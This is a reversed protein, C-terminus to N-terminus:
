RLRGSRGHPAPRRLTPFLSPTHGWHGLRLRPWGLSALSCIRTGLMHCTTSRSAATCTSPWATAAASCQGNTRCYALPSPRHAHAATCHTRQPAAAAVATYCARFLAACLSRGGRWWLSPRLECVEEFSKTTATSCPRLPVTRVFVGCRLRPGSPTRIDSERLLTEAWEAAKTRQLRAGEYAVYVGLENM